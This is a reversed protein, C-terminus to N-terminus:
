LTTPTASSLLKGHLIHCITFDSSCRSVHASGHAEQGRSRACRCVFLARLMGECSQPTQSTKIELRSWSIPVPQRDRTCGCWRFRLSSPTELKNQSSCARYDRATCVALPVEAKFTIEPTPPTPVSCTLRPHETSVIRRPSM